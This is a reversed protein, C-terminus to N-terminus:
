LFPTLPINLSDLFLRFLSNPLHYNLVLFTGTHMLKKEETGRLSYTQIDDFKLEDIFGQVAKIAVSGDM